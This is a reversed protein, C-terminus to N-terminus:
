DADSPEDREADSDQDEDDIFDSDNAESSSTIRKKKSTRQRSGSKCQKSTSKAEPPFVVKGESVSDKLTEWVGIQEDADNAVEEYVAKTEKM